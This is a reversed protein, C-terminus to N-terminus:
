LSVFETVTKLERELIRSRVWTPSFSGLRYRSKISFQLLARYASQVHPPVGNAPNAIAKNRAKHDQPNLGRDRLHAQM